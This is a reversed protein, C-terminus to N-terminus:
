NANSRERKRAQVALRARRDVSDAVKDILPPATHMMRRSQPAGAVRPHRFMMQATDIIDRARDFPLHRFAAPTVGTLRKFAQYFNKKSKYGLELAVAEIKEDRVREISKTIAVIQRYNRISMGHERKFERALTSSTAHLHRALSAITWETSSDHGILHAALTAQSIPHVESLRKFFAAVWSQFGVHPDVGRPKWFCDLFVAPAFACHGIHENSHARRHLAMGTEGAFELLLGRLIVREAQGVPVPLSSAFRVLFDQADIRDLLRVQGAAVQLRDITSAIRNRSTVWGNAIIPV